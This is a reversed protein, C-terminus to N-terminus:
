SIRWVELAKLYRKRLLAELVELNQNLRTAVRLLSLRCRSESCLTVDKGEEAGIVVETVM